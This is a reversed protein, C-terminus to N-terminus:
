HHSPIKPFRNRYARYSKIEGFATNPCRNTNCAEPYAHPGVTRRVYMDSSVPKIHPLFKTSSFRYVLIQM